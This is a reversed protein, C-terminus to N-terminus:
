QLPWITVTTRFFKYNQPKRERQIDLGAIGAYAISQPIETLAVTFGALLDHLLYNTNYKPLWKIIPIKREISTKWNCSSNKNLPNKKTKKKNPAEPIASNMEM